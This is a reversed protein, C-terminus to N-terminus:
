SVLAIIVSTSYHCEHEFSVQAIIVSIIYHCKAHRSKINIQPLAINHPIHRLNDLAHKSPPAVACLWVGDDVFRACRSGLKLGFGYFAKM